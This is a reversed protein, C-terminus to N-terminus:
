IFDHLERFSPTQTRQQFIPTFPPNNDFYFSSSSSPPLTSASSSVQYSSNYPRTSKVETVYPRNPYLQNLNYKREDGIEHQQEIQRQQNQANNAVMKLIVQDALSPQNPAKPFVPMTMSKGNNGRSGKKSARSGGGGGKSTSSSSAVGGAVNITIHNSKKDKIKLIKSIKPKAKKPM